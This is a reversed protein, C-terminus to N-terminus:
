TEIGKIANRKLAQYTKAPMYNEDHKALVTTATLLTKNKLYGEVIVGKGERFLDPLVGQYDVSIENKLDTIVFHVALSQNERVISGNKVLGGLRIKYNSHLSDALLQTPTFFVNINQQLAYLTLGLAFSLGLIFFSIQWIRKKHLKNM